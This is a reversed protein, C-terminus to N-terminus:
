KLDFLKRQAMEVARKQIEHDTSSIDDFFAALTAADAKEVLEREMKPSIDAVPHVAYMLLRAREFLDLLFERILTPLFDQAQGRLFETKRFSKRM